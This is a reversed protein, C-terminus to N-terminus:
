ALCQCTGSTREDAEEQPGDATRADYGCLALVLVVFPAETEGGRALRTCLVTRLHRIGLERFVINQAVSSQQYKPM